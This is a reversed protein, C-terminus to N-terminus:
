KTSCHGGEYQIGTGTWGMPTQDITLRSQAKPSVTVDFSYTVRQQPSLQVTTRYINRGDLTDQKVADASGNLLAMNTITGGEPPYFLIKEIGLGEYGTPGAVYEPLKAVDADKLTNDLSYEVHYTTGKAADCSVATIKATRKIYWGMKSPNQETLYIGISPNATDNPITGSFGAKEINKEINEDFVYMSFHREQAMRDMMEGIKALKSINVNKFMDNIVQEAILGFVGDTEGENGAYDLYVTNLLYQATNEGTLVLGDPLTVNGGIKVLEQVFVPDVMVIGDLTTSQGWPTRNWISRMSNAADEVNPFVAMDRVDFSMHLPGDETFVRNMDASHDGYGYDLYQKNPRFDGVHLNGHDSTMEGVSGILGGSSRMESTTMAMVAYTRAQGSGLFEPLISFTNTLANVKEAIGNLKESGQDYATQIQRLNPERLSNYRQVQEQLSKNAIALKPQAEIIPQLNIGDGNALNAHQLTTLASTFEPVSDGFISQIVETMGQLTIIDGGIFPMKAAFNWLSGHATTNAAEVEKQIEPIILQLNDSSTNQIDGSLGKMMSLAKSEHAQIQQADRYLKMGCIGAAIILAVVIGLTTAVWPWVRHRRHSRYHTSHHSAM